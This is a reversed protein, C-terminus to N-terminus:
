WKSSMPQFSVCTTTRKQITAKMKASSLRVVTFNLHPCRIVFFSVSAQGAPPTQSAPKDQAWGSLCIGVVAMMVIAIRKM